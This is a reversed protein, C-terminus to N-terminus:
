AQPKGPPPKALQLHDKPVALPAMQKGRYTAGPRPPASKMAHIKPPPFSGHQDHPDYHTGQILKVAQDRTVGPPALLLDTKSLGRWLIQNQFAITGGGRKRQSIMRNIDAVCVWDSHTTIGWKAHDNTEPWALHIGLFGLNIYKIDYTKHVGDTDAVPPIAGRIWTEVDMDEKLTPGVLGNWFDQNWARNKAIVKFDLGGKTKLDLVSANGQANQNVGKSLRVIPSSADLDKPLRPDYTQPQQYDYLEAAIQQFHTWIWRSACIPRAM